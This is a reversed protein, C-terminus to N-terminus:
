EIENWEGGEKKIVRRDLAPISGSFRKIKLLIKPEM